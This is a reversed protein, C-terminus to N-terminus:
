KKQLDALEASGFLEAAEQLFAAYMYRFGAGGTGTEEVWRVIGALHRCAEQFGLKDPSKIIKKALFRIGRVGFIPLPIRLMLNCSDKMGKICAKRLDPHPNVSKTYYMYGRPNLPGPVFRARELGDALCDVPDGFAPDSIRFGGEIERLVIINHGNFNLRHRESLYSLWYINTTLGVIHGTKLM